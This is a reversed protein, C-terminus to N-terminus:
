HMMHSGRSLPVGVGGYDDIYDIMACCKQRMIFRVTDSLHQFIQSLHRKGLPVCTDMYLGQWELGPLDYDGPDIKVHRFTGSVDIKYLLAGRRLCQLQSTIDDVTPFTLSIFSDLYSTKDIGANVSARPPWSLDVIIRCRDSNPQGQDHLAFM